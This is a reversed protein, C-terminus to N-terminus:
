EKDIEVTAFREKMAKIKLFVLGDRIGAKVTRLDYQSSVSISTEVALDVKDALGGPLEPQAVEMHIRGGGGYSEASGLDTNITTNERNAGPAAVMITTENLSEVRVTNETSM